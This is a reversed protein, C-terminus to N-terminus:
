TRVLEIWYHDAFRALLPVGALHTELATLLRLLRPCREIASYVDSPPLFLGLSEVHSRVFWPAFARTLARISPYYVTMAPSNPPTFQAQGSLRRKATRFDGHLTHWGIEWLCLPGMVGLCILSAARVRTALWAALASLDAVANIPGFSAFAGDYLNDCFVAPSLANLDLHAFIVPLDTGIKARAVALMTESADTATVIVGRQALFLADSGTGCGLELVRDGAKFHAALRAQTRTRLWRGIPTDTFTQDYSAALADFPTSTRM